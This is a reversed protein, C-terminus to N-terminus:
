AECLLSSSYSFSFRRQPPRFAMGNIQREDIANDIFPLSRGYKKWIGDTNRGYGYAMSLVAHVRGEFWGIDYTTDMSLVSFVAMKKDINPFDISM